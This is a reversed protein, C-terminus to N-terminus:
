PLIEGGGGSQDEAAQVVFGVLAQRGSYDNNQSDVSPTESVGTAAKYGGMGEGSDSVATIRVAASLKRHLHDMLVRGNQVTEAAGAKSDWSNLIARFLPVIAAFVIAMIAMAIVMELLTLAKAGALVGMKNGQYKM